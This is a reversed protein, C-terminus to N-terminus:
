VQQAQPLCLLFLRQHPSRRELTGKYTLSPAKGVQCLQVSKQFLLGCREVFSLRGFRNRIAPTLRIHLLTM